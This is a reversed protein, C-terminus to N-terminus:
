KKRRFALLSLGGLGALVMTGPEPVAGDVVGLTFAAIVPSGTNGMLGPTAQSSGNGTTITGSVASEGFFGQVTPNALYSQLASLTNGINASWGIIVFQANAVQALGTVTSNNGADVNISSAFRGTTVGNTGLLGANSWGAANFAYTGTSNTGAFSAASGGVTTQGTSYFLAYYFSGATGSTAGSAAGGAVSNTSIKAQNNNAFLVLGQAYSSSAAAAALAVIAIIKKM